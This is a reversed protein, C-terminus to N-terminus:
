HHSSEDGALYVLDARGSPLTQQRDVLRPSGDLFDLTDAILQPSQALIDEIARESATERDTM